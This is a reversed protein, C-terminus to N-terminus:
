VHELELAVHLIHFAIPHHPVPAILTGQKNNYNKNIHLLNLNLFLSYKSLCLGQKSMSSTTTTTSSSSSSRIINSPYNLSCDTGNECEGWTTCIEGLKTKGIKMQM